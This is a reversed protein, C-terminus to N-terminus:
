FCNSWGRPGLFGYGDGRHVTLDVGDVAVVHGYRKPLGSPELPLVHNASM